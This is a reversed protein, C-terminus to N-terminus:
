HVSGKARAEGNELCQAVSKTIIEALSVPVANGLQRMTETWSGPFVYDDPFGQLRAAERVTFYRVKGNPHRLMNEGGPVGHDGAKLTKSPEDLPSGTHGPYVRAGPQHRHNTIELGQGNKSPTPLDGIADRVTRWPKLSLDFMHPQKQIKEIRRLTRHDARPRANRKLAHREWYNENIWQDVLLSDLSHTPEPFSWECEQDERFGVIFVRSRKQPVGYDAANLVRCVVKYKLGNVTGKTKHQELTAHHAQWDQNDKRNIEPYTLQLLIYQLYNEFAPRALGRVNEFLFARPATKRVVDVAVPFMDREDKLGRHKGCISFPQCPPGGSVLDIKEELSEFSFQRVDGEFVPWNKVLPFGRKQNERITECAWNDWEIVAQHGFGALDVGM